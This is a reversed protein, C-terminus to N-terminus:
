PPSSWTATVLTAAKSTRRANFRQQHPVTLVVEQVGMPMKDKAEVGETGAEEEEEEEAVVTMTIAVVMVEQCTPEQCELKVLAKDVNTLGQGVLQKHAEKAMKVDVGSQDKSVLSAEEQEESAHLMLELEEEAVPLSSPSSPVLTVMQAKSISGLVVVVMRRHPAVVHEEEEMVM